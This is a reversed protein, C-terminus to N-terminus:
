QAPTSGFQRNWELYLELDQNSVSARVVSLSMEFDTLNIPRVADAAVEMINKISRVPCRAAESCLAKMDSGSYGRTKHAIVDLDADSLEFRQGALYIRVMNKRAEAEPLPIYLRKVFRRRAAEDLEQPRNTAGVVLICDENDSGVGEMQVLFETKLRRSCEQDGDTRQTLLSDIEDIFIIKRKSEHCRAVTFLARVMKEGEGVWKSTLSSASINFFAADAQSAIARGIM